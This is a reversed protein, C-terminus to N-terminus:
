MCSNSYKNTQKYMDLKNWNVETEMVYARHFGKSRFGNSKEVIGCYGVFVRM